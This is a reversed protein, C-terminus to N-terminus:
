KYLEATKDEVFDEIMKRLVASPNQLNKECKEFFEEKLAETVRFQIIASREEM